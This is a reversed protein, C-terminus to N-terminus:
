PKVTHLLATPGLVEFDIIQGTINIEILALAQTMPQAIFEPLEARTVIDGVNPTVRYWYPVMYSTGDKGEAIAFDTEEAREGLHAKILIVGADWDEIPSGKAQNPWVSIVVTQNEQAVLLSLTHEEGPSSPIPEPEITKEENGCAPLALVSALVLSGSFLLRRM